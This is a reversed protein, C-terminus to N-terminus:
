INFVYNSLLKIHLSNGSAILFFSDGIDGQQIIVDDAAYDKGTLSRSITILQKESLTELLKVNKLVKFLLCSIISTNNTTILFIINFRSVLARM